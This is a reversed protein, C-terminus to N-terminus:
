RQGAPGRQNAQPMRRGMITRSGMSIVVMMLWSPVKSFGHCVYGFPILLGHRALFGDFPHMFTDVPRGEKWTKKSHVEYVAEPNVTTTNMRVTQISTEPRVDPNASNLTPIQFHWIYPPSALWTSCLLAEEECDLRALSPSTPDASFLPLSEEWAKNLQSCRGFCSKNGGTVLMLWELKEPDTTGPQVPNFLEQWNEGNVETVHKPKLPPAPKASVIPSTAAAQSAVSVAAAQTGAAAANKLNNFSDVVAPPVMSKAQNFWGFVKEQLVQANLPQQQQQQQQASALLPLTAAIVPSFRM